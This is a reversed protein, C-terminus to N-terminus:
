RSGEIIWVGLPVILYSVFTAWAAGTLGFHPIFFLNLGLNTLMAVINIVFMLRVKDEVMLYQYVATGLFLGLSSWIYIQLIAVSALYNAGFLWYILPHSLLVVPIAIAIPIIAMLIYFNRLRRRYVEAGIQKAKIIAPFLSSCIIGPIFYWVEVLKVAAAYLGVARSGMMAGIMVQDIRLYIYSAAAALMLPWSSHWIEKALGRDFNWNKMKLGSRHYANIFGLSQWVLDLLYIAIIWIVGGGALIAIIKLASSIFTAIIIARVNNKAKVEAQFYISIVNAAQM